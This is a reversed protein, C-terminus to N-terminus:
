PAGDSNPRDPGKWRRGHADLAGAIQDVSQRRPGDALWARSSWWRLVACGAGCAKFVEGLAATALPARKKGGVGVACARLVRIRQEALRSARVGRPNSTPM